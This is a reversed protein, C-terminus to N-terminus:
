AGPAVVAAPLVAAAPQAPAAAAASEGFVHVERQPFPIQIGIERFRRWLALNIGSIVGLTGEQPDEIWVVLRLDIGSEGFNVLFAKPEPDALVRPQSRAVEILVAMAREIDTDYAVQVNIPLLMRSNTFTENQVVSGVLTENPVIVEVGTGGRLVTYRTTIHSVVGRDPGVAILNGIRISRDLLIIFGSVYNAAIKQLGMGLGVGLAGGFVSLTTLDIGVMPLAIMVAVLVLVSKAVRVLVLRVSADIGETAMLKQEMLGAVWLAVLLTALVSVLGQLLLWLSLETKGLKFSVAELGLIVDPLWGLIHLAVVSWALVAFIREFAAMWAAHGFAQRLAYVVLRIVALSALLPLALSLLHVHQYPKLLARALFVLALAVLPFMVRRLGGRGLRYRTSVEGEQRRALRQLAARQVLWALLLCASLALVQWLIAPQRLDSWLELALKFSESEAMDPNSLYAFSKWPM